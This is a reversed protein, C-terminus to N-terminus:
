RRAEFAFAREETELRFGPKEEAAEQASRRWLLLVVGFMLLKSVPMAAWIGDAGRWLPLLLLSLPLVLFCDLYVLLSAMGPRDMAQFYAESVKQLGLFPYVAASIILGRGAVAVVDGSANFLAPILRYGGASLLLGGAGILVASIVGYRAIKERRETDGAGHLFSVVPQIGLGIGQQLMLIMAEVYSIIAYAAVAAVGGYLLAQRNHLLIVAAVSIQVGFSPLGAPIIRRVIRRKLRFCRRSFRFHSRGAAFYGAALAFCIAQSLVTAWASGAVGGHLVLVFLWDLVINAALGAVMIAMAPKPAGDNRMAAVLCVAAMMFIGGGLTIVAYERAAPLLAPAAGVASLIPNLFPILGALLVAAPVLLALSNGLFLDATRRAGRGRALAINIAGGTGIMEGCAVILLSLPFAVNIAALGDNGAGWGVFFGDVLTYVGATLMSIMSPIVYRFFLKGDTVTPDNAFMIFRRLIKRCKGM